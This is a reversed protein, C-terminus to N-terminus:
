CQDMSCDETELRRRKSMEVFLDECDDELERKMDMSFDSKIPTCHLHLKETIQSAHLAKCKFITYLPDNFM